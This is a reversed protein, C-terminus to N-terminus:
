KCSRGCISTVESVCTADWAVACCYPDSGCVQTACGDCAAALAGGAACIPHACTSADADAGADTPPPPATCSQGCVSQVQAVCTEDWATTCCYADGTCVQTACADCSASLAGGVACIPHCASGDTTDLRAAAREVPEASPGACAVVVPVLCAFAVVLVHNRM